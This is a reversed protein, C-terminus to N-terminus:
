RILLAKCYEGFLKQMIPETRSIGCRVAGDYILTSIHHRKVISYAAALDFGEPLPLSQETVASKILTIIGRQTTDM